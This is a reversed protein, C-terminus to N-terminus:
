RRQRDVRAQALHYQIAGGELAEVRHEGDRRRQGVAIREHQRHLLVSLACLLYSPLQRVAALAVEGCHQVREVAVLPHRSALRATHISETTLVEKMHTTHRHYGVHLLLEERDNALGAQQILLLSAPSVAEDVIVVLVARLGLEDVRHDDACQIRVSGLHAEDASALSAHLTLLPCHQRRAVRQASQADMGARHQVLSLQLRDFHIALLLHVVVVAVVAVAVLRVIVVFLVLDNTATRM